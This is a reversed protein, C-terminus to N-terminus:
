ALLELGGFTRFMRFINDLRKPRPCCQQDRWEPKFSLAPPPSLRSISSSNPKIFFTAMGMQTHRSHHGGQFYGVEELFKARLTAAEKLLAVRQDLYDQRDAGKCQSAQTLLEKSRRILEEVQLWLLQLSESGSALM